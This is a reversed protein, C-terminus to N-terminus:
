VAIQSMHRQQQNTDIVTVHPLVINHALHTYFYHWRDTHESDLFESIDIVANLHTVNILALANEISQSITQYDESTLRGYPKITLIHRNNQQNISLNFGHNTSQM